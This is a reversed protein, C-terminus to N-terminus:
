ETKWRRNGDRASDDKIPNDSSLPGRNQVILGDLMASIVEAPCELYDADGEKMRWSQVQLVNARYSTFALLTSVDADDLSLAYRIRRNLDNTDM